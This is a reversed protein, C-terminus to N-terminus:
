MNVYVDVHMAIESLFIYDSYTIKKPQPGVEAKAYHAGDSPPALSKLRWESDPRTNTTHNIPVQGLAIDVNNKGPCNRGEIHNNPGLM